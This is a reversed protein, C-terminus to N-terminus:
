TCSFVINFSHCVSRYTGSQGLVNVSLLNLTDIGNWEASNQCKGVLRCLFILYTFMYFRVCFPQDYQVMFTRALKIAQIKSLIEM